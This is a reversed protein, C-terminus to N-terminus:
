VTQSLTSVDVSLALTPSKDRNNGGNHDIPLVGIKSRDVFRKGTNEISGLEKGCLFM